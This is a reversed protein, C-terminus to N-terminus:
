QLPKNLKNVHAMSLNQKKKDLSSTSANAHQRSMTMMTQDRYSQPSDERAVSM